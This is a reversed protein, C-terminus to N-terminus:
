IRVKILVSLLSSIPRWNFNFDDSWGRVSTVNVTGAEVRFGLIIRPCSRNGSILWKNSESLVLVGAELGISVLSGNSGVLELDSKWFGVVISIIFFVIVLNEPDLSEM